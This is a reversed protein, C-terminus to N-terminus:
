GDTFGIVPWNHAEAIARLKQDPDVAFAADARELLPLDNISDSYFHITEATANRESLWQQLAAVKGDRYTPVGVM